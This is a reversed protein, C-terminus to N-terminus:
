ATPEGFAIIRLADLRALIDPPVHTGDSGTYGAVLFEELLEYARQATPERPASRIAAELLAEAQSPWFSRGVQAEIAGLLYYAEALDGRAQAPAATFRHLVGSAQLYYVLADRADGFRGTDRAERLLARAEQLAGAAPERRQLARLSDIWALVQNRLIPALDERGAFGELARAPRELEGRVRICLELYDDLHGLLDLDTPPIGPSALLAEYSGLAREFQHTAYALRARQVLPLESAQAERASPGPLSPEAEGPLRSHCAICTEAIQQVLFQAEQPYGAGFRQRVDLTDDALVRSLHSFAVDGESGHKALRQSSRELRALHQEIRQRQAPDRFDEDALSAPLLFRMAGAIEGMVDRLAADARLAGSGCLALAFALALLPPRM